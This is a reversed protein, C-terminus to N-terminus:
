IDHVLRTNWEGDLVYLVDFKETALTVYKEPLVVQIFREENLISSKISDRKGPLDQSYTNLNLLGLLATIIVNVFFRTTHHRDDKWARWHDDASMEPFRILNM